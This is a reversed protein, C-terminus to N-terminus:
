LKSGGKPANLKRSLSNFGGQLGQTGITQFARQALGIGLQQKQAKNSIRGAAIDSRIDFTKFRESLERAREDATFSRESSLIAGRASGSTSSQGRAGAIARQTSINQRLRELNFLADETGQLRMQEIKNEANAADLEFGMKMSKAAKRTAYLDTALGAAQAALLILPLAM